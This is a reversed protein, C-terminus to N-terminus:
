EDGADNKPAERDDEDAPRISDAMLLQKEGREPWHTTVLDGEVVVRKGDLEGAADAAKTVDVDARGLEDSSLVWGTTEAGVAVVGGHLTGTFSRKAPAPRDAKRPAVPQEQTVPADAPRSPEACGLALPSLVFFCIAHRTM